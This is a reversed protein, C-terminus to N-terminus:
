QRSRRLHQQRIRSPSIGPEGRTAWFQNVHGNSCSYIQSYGLNWDAAGGRPICILYSVAMIDRLKKGGALKAVRSVDEIGTMDAKEVEEEDLEDAPRVGGEPVYGVASTGDELKVEMDEDEDEELAEATRKQLAKAPVPPPLMLGKGTAPLAKSSSPGPSQADEEDSFGDLDALLSDALSM